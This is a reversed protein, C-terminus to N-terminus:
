QPVARWRGYINLQLQLEEGMRGRQRGQKREEREDRNGRGAERSGGNRARTGSWRRGLGRAGLAACAEVIRVGIRVGIEVGLAIRVYISNAMGDLDRRWSDGPKREKVKACNM